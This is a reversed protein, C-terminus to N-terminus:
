SGSHQYCFRSGKQPSRKCRQGSRTQGGCQVRDTAEETEAQVRKAVELEEHTAIPAASRAGYVLPAGKLLPNTSVKEVDFTYAWIKHSSGDQYQEPVQFSFGHDGGYGTMELVEPKPINANCFGIYEGDVHNGDLYFEVRLHEKPQNPDLCWGTVLGLRTVRELWGVPSMPKALPPAFTRPSGSITHLRGGEPELLCAWIKLRRGDLLERPLELLFDHGGGERPSNLDVILFPEKQLGPSELYFRLGLGAPDNAWGTGYGSDCFPELYGRPEGVSGSDALQQISNRALCRELLEAQLREEDDDTVRPTARNLGSLIVSVLLILVTPQDKYNQIAEKVLDHESNLLVAGSEDLVVAQDKISGTLRVRSLRINSVLLDGNGRNIARLETRLAALFFEQELWSEDAVFEIAKERLAAPSDSSLQLPKLFDEGLLRELTTQATYGLSLRPQAAVNTTIERLSRQEGSETKLWRVDLLSSKEDLENSQWADSIELDPFDALRVDFAKLLVGLSDPLSAVRLYDALIELTAQPKSWFFPIVSPKAVREFLEPLPNLSIVLARALTQDVTVSDFNANPEFDAELVLELGLPWEPPFLEMLLCGDKILRVVPLSVTKRIGVQGKLDEEEIDAYALFRRGVLKAEMPTALWKERKLDAEHLRRLRRTVNRLYLLKKMPEHLEKESLWVVPMEEISQQPHFEVSYPLFGHAKKSKALEEFTASKGNALTWVKLKTLCGPYTSSDKLKGIDGQDLLEQRSEKGFLDPDEDCFREVSIKRARQVELMMAQFAENRQIAAGSLDKELSEGSIVARFPLEGLDLPVTEILVGDCLIQLESPEGAIMGGWGSFGQGDVTVEGVRRGQSWGHPAGSILTGNVFIAQSAASCHKKLLTQERGRGRLNQWFRLLLKPHWRERLQIQTDGTFRSSTSLREAEGARAELRAGGASDVVVLKPNLAEAALLGAALQRRSRGELTDASELVAMELNSLDLETFAQGEFRMYMDDSDFKFHIEEAGRLIAAQVLELVYAYPNALQYRSLKERARARDITFHGRVIETM